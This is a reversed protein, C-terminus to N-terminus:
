ISQLGAEPIFFDRLLGQKALDYQEASVIDLRYQQNIVAGGGHDASSCPPIRKKRNGPIPPIIYFLLPAKGYAGNMFFMYELSIIM